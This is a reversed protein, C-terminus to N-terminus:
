REVELARISYACSVAEDMRAGAVTTDEGGYWEARDIDHLHREARAFCAEVARDMQDSIRLRYRVSHVLAFVLLLIALVLPLDEYIMMMMMMM